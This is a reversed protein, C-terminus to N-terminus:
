VIVLELLQFQLLEAVFTQGSVSKLSNFSNFVYSKQVMGKYAFCSVSIKEEQNRILLSHEEEWVGQSSFRIVAFAFSTLLM